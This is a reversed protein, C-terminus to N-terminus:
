YGSLVANSFPLERVTCDPVSYICILAVSPNECQFAHEPLTTLVRDAPSKVHCQNLM